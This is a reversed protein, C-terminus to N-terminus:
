YRVNDMPPPSMLVDRDHPTAAEGGGPSTTAELRSPTDEDANHLTKVMAFTIVIALSAGAAFSV